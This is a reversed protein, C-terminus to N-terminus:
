AALKEGIGLHAVVWGMTNDLKRGTGSQTPLVYYVCELGTKTIGDFRKKIILANKQAKVVFARDIGQVCIHNSSAFCFKDALKKAGDRRIYV